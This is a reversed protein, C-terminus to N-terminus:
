KFGFYMWGFRLVDVPHAGVTGLLYRQGDVEDIM